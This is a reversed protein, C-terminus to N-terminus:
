FRAARPAARGSPPRFLEDLASAVAAVLQDIDAEGMATSLAGTGSYILLIGRELLLDFLRNLGATQHPDLYAQRYNRPSEPRLHIRFLSGAGTLSVPWGGARIVMELGGRARQGLYNLRDVSTQDFLEMAALGATLTMPNASFTGAHPMLYRDGHPNLLAMVEARGGIAGVPFGGGIIKGMATLDPVLGYDAQAGGWAQRLTIVEDLVLLAGHSKAWDALGTVYAPEAPCLGARHPLVDLVLCAISEAQRGLLALSGDLDNFPLVVVDDLVAPPAAHTSPISAPQSTPGWNDPASTQSVEAYDYAGHYSGEVKALKARGTFARALKIASMVAETGSNFFCVQDLSGVRRCLHEALQIEVETALTHATGRGLQAAAAAIVEPRGHGHILAAMNNAFDVLVAGDVTTIRCGDAVAGYLPHPRRLVTSRSTGGPLVELGRRYLDASTAQQPPSVIRDM